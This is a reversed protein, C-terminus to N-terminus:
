WGDSQDRSMFAADNVSLSAPEIESWCVEVNLKIVGAAGMTIDNQLVFGQGNAAVGNSTLYFLYSPAGVIAPMPNVDESMEVITTTPCWLSRTRVPNADLTRTGATIEGTTAIQFATLVSDAMGMKRMQNGTAPVLSTAASPSVSFATARYLSHQVEQGATFGTTVYWKWKVWWVICDVTLSAWRFSMIDHGAGGTVVTVLGTAAGVQFDGLSKVGWSKLVPTFYVPNQAM